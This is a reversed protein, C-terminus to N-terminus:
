HWDLAKDRGYADLSRLIGPWHRRWGGTHELDDIRLVRAHAHAAFYRRGMAFSINRDAGGVVHLEKVNPALAPRDTPNLSLTLPTYGHSDTWARHDLNGALTVVARTNPFREALLLALTGGGSHGIFTIALSPLGELVCKLAASMSGVVREGYRESTWLRPACPPEDAFGLYCARGLYLAPAPDMAMLDLVIPQRPTPDHSVETTTRWPSGDGEIYVHLRTISANLNKWFIRHFFESGRVVRDALRYGQAKHEIRELPTACGLLYGCLLLWVIVRFM